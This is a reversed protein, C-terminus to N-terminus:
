NFNVLILVPFFIYGKNNNYIYTEGYGYTTFSNFYVKNYIYTEMDM